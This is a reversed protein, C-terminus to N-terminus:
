ASKTATKWFERDQYELPDDVDAIHFAELREVCTGCRGCALDEGKYCTWTNEFPVGLADGLEVIDAKTMNVFPAALRPPNWDCLKVAQGLAEAFEPRCDPYIAHDGAHAGYFVFDAKEAIAAGVAISTLIMNRNPVVTQKMNEAAYHGEPVDGGGTLCSAHLINHLSGLDAIIHKIGLAKGTLAARELEKSHRQGYNVSFGAVLEHTGKQRYALVTSDLGGSLVIIARNKMPTHTPIHKARSGGHENCFWHEGWKCTSPQGCHGPQGELFQCPPKPKSM